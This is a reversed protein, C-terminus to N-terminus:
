TTSSSTVSSSLETTARVGHLPDLKEVTGSLTEGCVLSEDSSVVAIIAKSGRFLGDPTIDTLQQAAEHVM